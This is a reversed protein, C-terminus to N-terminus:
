SERFHLETDANSFRSVRVYLSLSTPRTAGKDKGEAVAISQRTPQITRYQVLVYQNISYSFQARPSLTAYRRLLRDRLRGHLQPRRACHRSQATAGPVLRDVHGVAADARVYVGVVLSM